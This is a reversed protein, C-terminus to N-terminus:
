SGLPGPVMDAPFGDAGNKEVAEAIALLPASFYSNVLASYRLRSALLEWVCTESDANDCLHRNRGVWACVDSLVEDFADFGM